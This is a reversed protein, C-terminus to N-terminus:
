GYKFQHIGYGNMNKLVTKYLLKAILSPIKARDWLVGLEEARKFNPWHYQTQYGHQLFIEVPNEPRATFRGGAQVLKNHIRQAFQDFFKKSMLDCLLIHQPFLTQLQSITAHIASEELYMFVGEIVIIVNQHQRYADLKDLLTETAFEICIRTLTNACESIPLKEDKLKMLHAEDIEVWQGGQIRYPRSDFGAGVTVILSNPHTKLQHRIAEDISYCRVSNSINPMTESKFPEFIQMGREDMFRKAYIDHCLSRPHEADLM